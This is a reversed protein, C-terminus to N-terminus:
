DEQPQYDSFVTVRPMEHFVLAPFNEIEGGQELLQKIIPHKNEGYAQVIMDNIHQKAFNLTITIREFDDWAFDAVLSESSVAESGPKIGFAHGDTGIGTVAMVHDVQSLAKTIWENFLKTTEQRSDGTLPRYLTAGPLEMGRDVLSQFNEEPHGLEGYREDGMTVLLNSLDVDKLLEAADLCVHAGSGGSLLWLVKRGQNLEAQLREAIFPAVNNIPTSQYNM